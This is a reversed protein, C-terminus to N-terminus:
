WGMTLIPIDTMPQSASGRRHTAGPIVALQNLCRLRAQARRNLDLVLHDAGGVVLLTPAHVRGLRDWALDPRGGRSVIAAVDNGPQAATWLAAAAGTSAGFLGVPLDGHPANHLWDV